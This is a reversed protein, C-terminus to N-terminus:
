ATKKQIYIPSLIPSLLRLELYNNLVAKRPAKTCICIQASHKKLNSTKIILFVFHILLIDPHYLYM